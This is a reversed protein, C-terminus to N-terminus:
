AGCGVYRPVVDRVSQWWNKAGSICVPLLGAAARQVLLSEWTKHGNVGSSVMVSAGALAGAGTCIIVPMLLNM